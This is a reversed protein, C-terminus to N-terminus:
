RRAPRPRAARPRGPGRAARPRLRAHAARARAARLQDRGGRQQDPARRRRAPARGALRAVARHVGAGGPRRLAPVRRPGRDDRDGDHRRRGGRARGPRCRGAPAAHRVGGLSRARPRRREPLRAPQRHNRLRHRRDRPRGRGGRLRAPRADRGAGAHRRSGRRARAALSRRDERPFSSWSACTARRLVTPHRRRRVQAARGARHGHRVRLGTYREPDYGVAEFVAPHVMGSGLVELWGTRKCVACGRAAASSAASTSSRAPSPTRSSARGSASPRRPASSARPRVGRAHGEPRRPDHGRRGGAGRGALVDAHADPRLQRAPLRTGACIIRVPPQHAQMYRIQMGSTHTRLVTATHSECAVPAALYLTDQMDRAPHDAPMNLAEFNHYDDELEPGEVVEYGMRLFIEEIRERMQTLPHRRGTLPPRGPLTVDVRPIAPGLAGLAERREAIRADVERKLENALRGLAPRDEAPAAAVAKMLSTVVGSKRGLYRDRLVRLDADSAARALEALFEARARELSATDTM